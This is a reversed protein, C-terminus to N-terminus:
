HAKSCTTRGASLSDMVSAVCCCPRETTSPGCVIIIGGVTLGAKRPLGDRMERAVLLLVALEGNTAEVAEHDTDFLVLMLGRFTAEKEFLIM